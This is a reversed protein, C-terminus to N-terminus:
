NIIYLLLKIYCKKNGLKYWFGWSANGSRYLSRDDSHDDSNKPLFKQDRSKDHSWPKIVGFNKNQIKSCSLPNFGVPNM